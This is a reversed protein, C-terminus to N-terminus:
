SSEWLRVLRKVGGRRRTGSAKRGQLTIAPEGAPGFGLQFLVYELRVPCPIPIPSSPYAVSM